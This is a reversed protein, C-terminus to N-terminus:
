VRNFIEFTGKFTDYASTGVVLQGENSLASYSIAKFTGFSEDGLSSVIDEALWDEGSVSLVGKGHCL